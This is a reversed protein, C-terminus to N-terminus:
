ILLIVLLLMVLLTILSLEEKDLIVMKPLLERM